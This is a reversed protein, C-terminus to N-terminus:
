VSTFGDNGEAADRELRDMIELREAESLDRWIEIEHETRGCGICVGNEKECISVCPSSISM